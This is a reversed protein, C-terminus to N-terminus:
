PGVDVVLRAPSSLTSVRFPVEASVGMAWTLYGEFDGTWAVEQVLRTGGPRFRRPGTYTMKVQEGVLEAGSADNMRVQLAASGALPVERGSGDERVPEPVYRVDYGPATEGRFEFVVRDFGEHGAVRVATLYARPARGPVSVPTTGGRTTATPAAGGPTTAPALSTAPGAPTGPGSSVADTTSTQASVPARERDGCGASALLLALALAPPLLGTMDCAVARLFPGSPGKRAYPQTRM